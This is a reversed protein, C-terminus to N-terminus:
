EGRRVEPKSQNEGDNKGKSRSIDGFGNLEAIERVVEIDHAIIALEIRM